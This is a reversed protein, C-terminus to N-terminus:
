LFIAFEFNLRSIRMDEYYYAPVFGHGLTTYHANKVPSFHYSANLWIRHKTNIEIGARLIFEPTLSNNFSLASHGNVTEFTPNDYFGIEKKFNVLASAGIGTLLRVNEVIPFRFNVVLPLNVQHVYVSTSNSGIAAATINGLADTFYDADKYSLRTNLYAPEFSLSFRDNFSYDYKLSVSSVFANSLNFEEGNGMFDSYSKVIPFSSEGIGIGFSHRQFNQSVAAFTCALLALTAFTRRM